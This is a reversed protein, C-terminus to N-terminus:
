EQSNTPEVGGAPVVLSRMRVAMRVGVAVVPHRMGVLVAMCPMSACVRTRTPTILAALWRHGLICSVTIRMMTAALVVVRVRRRNIHEHLNPRTQLIIQRKGRAGQWIKPLRHRRYRRRLFRDRRRRTIPGTFGKRLKPGHHQQGSEAAKLRRATAYERLSKTSM